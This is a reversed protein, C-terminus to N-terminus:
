SAKRIPRPSSPRVPPPRGGASPRARRLVPRGAGDPSPAPSPARHGAGGRGAGGGRAVGDDHAPAQGADGGRQGERVGADADRQQLAAGPEAAEGEGEPPAFQGHVVSLVDVQAAAGGVAPEQFADAAGREGRQLFAEVHGHDVDGPRRAAPQAPQAAVRQGHREVEAAAEGGVRVQREGVAGPHAARGGRQVPEVRVVRGEVLPVEAAPEGGVALRRAGDLCQPVQDAHGGEVGAGAVDRQRQGRHHQAGPQEGACAGGVDAPGADGEAVQVVAQGAPGQLGGADADAGAGPGGGQGAPLVAAPLDGEGLARAAPLGEVGVRDDEGHRGALGVPQQGASGDLVGSPEQLDAM